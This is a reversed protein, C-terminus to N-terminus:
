LKAQLVSILMVLNTLYGTLTAVTLSFTLSFSCNQILWPFDTKTLSNKRKFYMYLMLFNHVNVLFAPCTELCSDTTVLSSKFSFVSFRSSWTKHYAISTDAWVNETLSFSPSDSPIQSFITTWLYDFPWPFDSKPWPFTLSFDPFIFTGPIHCGQWYM